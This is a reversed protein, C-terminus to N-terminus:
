KNLDSTMHKYCGSDLHWLNLNETECLYILSSEKGEKERWYKEQKTDQYKIAVTNRTPTRLKCDREM